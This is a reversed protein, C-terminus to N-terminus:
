ATRTVTYDLGYYRPLTGTVSVEALYTYGQPTVEVFSGTLTQDASAVGSNTESIKTVGGFASVRFVKLRVINGNDKVSARVQIITQGPQTTLKQVYREISGASTQSEWYGGIASEVPPFYRSGASVSGNNFSSSQPVADIANVSITRGSHQHFDGSFFSKYFSATAAVCALANSLIAGTTNVAGTTMDISFVGGKTANDVIARSVAVDLSATLTVVSPNHTGSMAGTLGLTMLQVGNPVAAPLTFTKNSLMGSPAALTVGFTAGATAPLFKHDASNLKAPTTADSRFIYEKTTDNYTVQALTLGYDGGIGGSVATFNLSSGITMRMPVGTTPVWWLDSGSQQLTGVYGSGTLLTTQASFVVGKVANVLHNNFDADNTTDIGATSVHAALAQAWSDIGYFATVEDSAYTPGIRTGPVPIILNLYPTTTTDPM